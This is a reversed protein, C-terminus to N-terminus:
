HKCWDVSVTGDKSIRVFHLAYKEEAEKVHFGFGIKGDSEEYTMQSWKFLHLSFKSSEITLDLRLLDLHVSTRENNVPGVYFQVGTQLSGGSPLYISTGLIKEMREIDLNIEKLQRLNEFYGGLPSRFNGREMDRLSRDEWYEIWKGLQQNKPLRQFNQYGDGHEFLSILSERDTMPREQIKESVLGRFDEGYDRRLMTLWRTAVALEKAKPLDKTQEYVYQFAQEYAWTLNVLGDKNLPATKAFEVLKPDKVSKEAKQKLEESTKTM